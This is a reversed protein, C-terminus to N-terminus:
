FHNFIFKFSIKRLFIKWTVYFWNKAFFNSFPSVRIFETQGDTRIYLKFSWIFWKKMSKRWEWVNKGRIGTVTEIWQWECKDITKKINESHMVLVWRMLVWLSVLVNDDFVSDFEVWWGKLKNWSMLEYQLLM